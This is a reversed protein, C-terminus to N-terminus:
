LEALAALAAALLARQSASVPVLQDHLADLAAAGEQQLRGISQGAVKPSDFGLSQLLVQGHADVLKFYFQGDKERYQKFSATAVKAVKATSAQVVTRLSRLGV